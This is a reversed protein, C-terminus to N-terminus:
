LLQSLFTRAPVILPFGPRAFCDEDVYGADVTIRFAFPAGIRDQYHQLSRSMSEDRRKTEALFWPEGDRAVLFDVERKEKDRLYGLEFVGLGMDNWGEVAKLLHCAVFTEARQGM